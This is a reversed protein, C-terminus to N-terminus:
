LSRIIEFSDTKAGQREYNFLECLMILHTFLKLESRWESTYTTNRPWGVMMIFMRSASMNIAGVVLYYVKVWLVMAVTAM